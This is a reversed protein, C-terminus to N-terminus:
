KDLKRMLDKIKSDLEKNTQGKFLEKGDKGTVEIKTVDEGALRILMNIANLDGKIAKNMVVKILAERGNTKGVVKGEADKLNKEENLIAQAAERFNAALRRAKGSAQGAKSGTESNFRTAKAAEPKLNCGRM